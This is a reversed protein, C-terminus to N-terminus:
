RPKTIAAPVGRIFAIYDCPVPARGAQRLLLNVKGRHYQGHLAAHLLIDGMQNEFRVGASNVYEISSSLGHESLRGFFEGYRAHLGSVAPRLETLGLTPWVALLPLRREIRALWVESAGLVHCLENLAAAPEGGSSELADALLRDAWAAHDWLRKIEALMDAM